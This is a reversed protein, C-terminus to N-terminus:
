VGESTGFPRGASDMQKRMWLKVDKKAGDGSPVLAIPHKQASSFTGKVYNFFSFFFFGDRKKNSGRWRCTKLFPVTNAADLAEFSSFFYYFYSSFIWLYPRLSSYIRELWRRCFSRSDLRLSGDIERESELWRPERGDFQM